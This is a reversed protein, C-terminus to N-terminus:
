DLPSRVGLGRNLVHTYIMLSYHKVRMDNRVTDLLKPKNKTIGITDQFTKAIGEESIVRRKSQAATNIQM